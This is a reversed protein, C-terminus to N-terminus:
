DVELISKKWGPEDAKPPEGEAKEKPAFPGKEAYLPAAEVKPGVVKPGVVKLGFVTKVLKGGVPVVLTETKGCCKGTITINNQEDNEEDVQDAPQGCFSCIPWNDRTIIRLGQGPAAGPKVYTPCNCTTGRFENTIVSCGGPNNPSSNAHPAHGCHICPEGPM